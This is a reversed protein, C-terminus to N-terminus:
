SCKAHPSVHHGGKYSCAALASENQRSERGEGKSARRKVGQGEILKSIYLKFVTCECTYDMDHLLQLVLVNLLDGPPRWHSNLPNQYM